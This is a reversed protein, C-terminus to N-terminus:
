ELLEQLISFFKKEIRFPNEIVPVSRLVIHYQGSLERLKKPKGMEMLYLFGDGSATQETIRTITKRFKNMKWPAPNGIIIKKDCRLLESFDAEDSSGLDLILYNYGQNLLCPLEKASTNPYYDVDHIRFYSRCSNEMQRFPLKDETM